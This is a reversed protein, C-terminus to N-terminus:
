IKVYGIRVRDLEQQPLGPVKIPRPWLQFVVKAKINKVDVPGYSRSDRSENANDGLLWVHGLFLVNFCVSSCDM